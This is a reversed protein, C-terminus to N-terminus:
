NNVDQVTWCIKSKKKVPITDGESEVERYASKDNIIEDKKLAYFEKDMIVVAFGKDAQKIVIDKKEKITVIANRELYSVNYTADNNRTPAPINRISSLLM